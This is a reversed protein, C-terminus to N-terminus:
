CWKTTRRIWLDELCFTIRRIFFHNEYDYRLLIMLFNSVRLTANQIWAQQAVYAMSGDTNVIGTKKDTEGLISAILSSKGSGVTGVVAAIEGKKVHMDINKLVLEEEGWTFSANEIRLANVIQVVFTLLEVRVCKIGIRVM